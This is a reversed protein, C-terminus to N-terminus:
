LKREYILCNGSQIGEHVKPTEVIDYWELHLKLRIQSQLQERWNEGECIWTTSKDTDGMKKNIEVAVDLDSNKHIKGKVFSGYIYAKQILENESAWKRIINIEHKINQVM